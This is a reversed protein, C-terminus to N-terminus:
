TMVGTQGAPVTITYAESVSKSEEYTYETSFSVSATLIKFFDVGAETTVGFSTTTGTTVSTTETFTCAAEVGGAPCSITESIIQQAGRSLSM